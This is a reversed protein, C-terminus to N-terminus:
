KQIIEPIMHLIGWFKLFFTEIGFKEKFRNFTLWENSEDLLDNIFFIGSECWKEYFVTKDNINLKENFWISQSLIDSPKDDSCKRLKGWNQFM